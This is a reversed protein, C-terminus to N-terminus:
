LRSPTLQSTQRGPCSGAYSAKSASAGPHRGHTVSSKPLSPTTLVRGPTACRGRQSELPLQAVRSKQLLADLAPRVRDRVVVVGVAEAIVPVVKDSLIFVAYVDVTLCFRQSESYKAIRVAM